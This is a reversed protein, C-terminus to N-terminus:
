ILVPLMKLILNRRETESECGLLLYVKNETEFRLLLASVVAGSRILRIVPSRWQNLLIKNGFSV